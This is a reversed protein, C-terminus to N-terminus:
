KNLIEMLLKLVYAVDAGDGFECYKDKRQFTVFLMMVDKLGSICSTWFEEDYFVPHVGYLTKNAEKFSVVAGAKVLKNLCHRVSSQAVKLSKGIRYCTLPEKTGYLLRFIRTDM